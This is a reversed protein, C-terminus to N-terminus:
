SERITKFYSLLDNGIEDALKTVLGNPDRLLNPYVEYVVENAKLNQVISNFDIKRNSNIITVKICWPSDLHHTSLNLQVKYSM